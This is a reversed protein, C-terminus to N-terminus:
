EANGLYRFLGSGAIALGAIAVVVVPIAGLFLGLIILSLRDRVWLAIALGFIGGTAIAIPDIRFFYAIACGAIAGAISTLSLWWQKWTAVLALLLIGSLGLLAFFLSNRELEKLVVPGSVFVGTPVLSRLTNTANPTNLYVVAITEGNGLHFTDFWEGGVVKPNRQLAESTATKLGVGAMNLLELSSLRWIQRASGSRNAPNVDVPISKSIWDYHPDSLQNSVKAIKGAACESRWTQQLLRDEPHSLVLNDMRDILYFWGGLIDMRLTELEEEAYKRSFGFLPTSHGPKLWDRESKSMARATLLYPHYMEANPFQKRINTLVLPASAENLPGIWYPDLPYDTPTDAISYTSEFATKGAVFDTHYFLVAAFPALFLIGWYRPLTPQLPTLKRPALADESVCWGHSVIIGFSLGGLALLVRGLLGDVLYGAIIAIAFVSLVPIGFRKWIAWFRDDPDTEAGIRRIARALRLGAYFPVPIFLWLYPDLPSLLWEWCALTWIGVGLSGALLTTLGARDSRTERWIAILFALSLAVLLWLLRHRLDLAEPLLGLLRGKPIQLLKEETKPPTSNGLRLLIRNDQERWVATSILPSYGPIIKGDGPDDLALSLREAFRLLGRVRERVPQTSDSSLEDLWSAYLRLREGPPDDGLMFRLPPVSQFPGFAYKLRASLLLEPTSLTVLQNNHFYEEAFISITDADTLKGLPLEWTEIGPAGNRPTLQETQTRESNFVGLSSGPKTDLNIRFLWILAILTAAPYALRLVKAWDRFPFPFKETQPLKM